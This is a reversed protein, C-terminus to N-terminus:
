TPPAFGDVLGFHRERLTRLPTSSFRKVGLNSSLSTVGIMRLGTKAVALESLKVRGRWLVYDPTLKPAFQLRNGKYSGCRQGAKQEWCKPYASVLTRNRSPSIKMFIWMARTTAANESSTRGSVGSVNACSPSATGGAEVFKQMAVAPPKPLPPVVKTAGVKVTGAFFLHVAHDPQVFVAEVTMKFVLPAAQTELVPLVIVTLTKLASGAKKPLV